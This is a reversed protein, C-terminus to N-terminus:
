DARRSAKVARLTVEPTAHEKSSPARPQTQNALTVFHCNIRPSARKRAIDGVKLIGKHGPVPDCVVMGAMCSASAPPDDQKKKKKSTPDQKM